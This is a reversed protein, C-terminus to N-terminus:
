CIQTEIPVLLHLLVHFLTFHKSHKHITGQACVVKELATILDFLAIRMRNYYHWQFFFIM